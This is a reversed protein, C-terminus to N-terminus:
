KQMITEMLKGSYCCITKENEQCAVVARHYGDGIRWDSSDKQEKFVIIIKLFPDVEKNKIFSSFSKDMNSGNKQMEKIKDWVKQPNLKWGCQKAFEHYQTGSDGGSMKLNDLQIYQKGWYYTDRKKLHEAAQNAGGNKNKCKELQIKLDEESSQKLIEFKEQPSISSNKKYEETTLLYAVVEKWSVREKM